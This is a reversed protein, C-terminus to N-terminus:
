SSYRMNPTTGESIKEATMEVDGHNEKLAFVIDEPTWDPFMDKLPGLENAYQKM